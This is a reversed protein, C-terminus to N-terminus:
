PMLCGLMRWYEFGREYEFCSGALLLGQGPVLVSVRTLHMLLLFLVLLRMMLEWSTM